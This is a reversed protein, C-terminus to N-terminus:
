AHSSRNLVVDISAVTVVLTNALSRRNWTILNRGKQRGNKSLQSQSLPLHSYQGWDRRKSPSAGNGDKRKTKKTVPAM